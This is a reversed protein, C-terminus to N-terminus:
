GALMRDLADQFISELERIGLSQLTAVYDDWTDFSLDGTIFMAVSETVFVDLDRRIDIVRQNEEMTFTPFAFAPTRQYFPEFVPVSERVKRSFIFNSNYANRWYPWGGGPLPNTSGVAMALGRPSTLIDDSYEFTGDPLVQATIGILSESLSGIFRSGYETYFYDVWRFTIEPTEDMRTIVLGNGAWVSGLGIIPEVGPMRPPALPAFHENCENWLDDSSLGFSGAISCCFKSLMVDSTQTFVANDLLRETWLMNMFQLAEKYVDSDVFIEVRDGVVRANAYGLNPYVGFLGLWIDVRPNGGAGSEVIYPIRSPDSDRFARLVDVYEDLTTPMELGLENMWKQNIWLNRHATRNPELTNIMPLAYIGGDPATSAARVDPFQNFLDILGVSYREIFPTMDVISGNAIMRSLDQPLGKMIADPMTNSAMVLNFRETFGDASVVDWNIHVNTKEEYIQMVIMDTPDIIHPPQRIMFNKVIPENVIPFGTPNMVNDAATDAAAPAPAAPQAPAAAAPADATATGTQPTACAVTMVMALLATFLVMSCKKLNFSM